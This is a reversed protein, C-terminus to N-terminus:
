RRVVWTGALRDHLGRHPSAVSIATATIWVLVPVLVLGASPALFLLISVPLFLPLWVISWRLLRRPVGAPEGRGDIVSLRFTAHSVSTGFPLVLLRVLAEAALVTLIATLALAGDSRGTFEYLWEAGQRIGLFIMLGVYGPLLFISVARLGRGVEVPRDKQGCLNGTLFSLKEFTGQALNSLVPRAHLPVGTPEVAKAMASLLRQQGALDKTPIREASVAVDPWPEDLLIAKGEASIWIHDLSLEAPGTGDRSAEWLETALDLLWHRLTGWPVLKGSEVLRSFSAGPTAEFAEWTGDDKEVSQLWRMRGARTVCRRAPTVGAGARRVLWVERRLVPDTAALWRDPAIEGTVRFPGVADDTPRARVIVSEITLRLNWEQKVIVRTGSLLDWVTAFGNERRVSLCLLAPIWPCLATAASYMVIEFTTMDDIRTSTITLLLLPIRVLEVSLVPILIRLLARGVGPRRGNITVVRLGKLRKGPGGGFVGEAIAFFGLGFAIMALYPLAASWTRDLFFGLHFQENGVLLMLPVYPVLFAILFDPWGAAARVALSAPDPERSGFPLLANRLDMYDAYRGDPEKALCRAVVRELGPPVGERFVSLPPAPQNVANAVVQVANKGDFPARATLLAFLTAGVSYIDARADLDDGRLQEPAAFAPTGLIVGSATAWSDETAAMSISLGYDGVKVAGDPDVFCNSPKIDRHLVGHAFAAELGSIVDLMGDVAVAIPLPGRDELRDQLTGAAAIEMTIVPVSDIEESGFVYLSNPHNVSAALRGERLFRQRLDASDIRRDLMKLAVRRGTALEEAEYVTGMGGTGLVGALRYGGLDAPFVTPKTEVPAARGMAGSLLCAPCLRYTADVPIPADCKPCTRIAEESM